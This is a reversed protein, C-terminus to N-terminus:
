SGTVTVTASGATGAFTAVIQTEGAGQGTVLGNSDVTAVGPNVTAWMVSGPVTNGFQDEITAELQVTGGVAITAASPEVTLTINQLHIEIDMEAAAVTLVISISANVGPELDVTVTGNHTEIGNEDFARMTVSRDSGAPVTITGSAVGDEVVLNFVLPSEIGPGTVEIVVTAVMAAASLDAHVNLTAEGSSRLPHIDCAGIACAIVAVVGLKHRVACM